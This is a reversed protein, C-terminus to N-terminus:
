NFYKIYVKERRIIICSTCFQKIWSLLLLYKNIQKENLDYYKCYKTCLLFSSFVIICIDHFYFMIFVSFIKCFIFLFTWVFDWILRHIAFYMFYFLFWNFSHVNGTLICFHLLYLQVFSSCIISLLLIESRNGVNCFALECVLLLM